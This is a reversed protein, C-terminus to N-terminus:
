PAFAGPELDSQRYIRAVARELRLLDSQPDVSGDLMHVHLENGQVDAALTGPLLCVCNAFFVRANQQKLDTRYRAFGPQIRLRLALTRLAVDMGGRLSEWIFLPLFRLIGWVSVTWHEGTGLRHAAWSAALVTPVGVIWSSHDGDAILWWLGALGLPLLVPNPNLSM